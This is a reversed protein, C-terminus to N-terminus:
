IYGQLREAGDISHFNSWICLEFQAAFDNYIKEREFRGHLPSMLTHEIHQLWALVLGVLFM